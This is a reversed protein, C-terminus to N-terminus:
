PLKSPMPSRQHCQAERIANPQKKKKERKRWKKKKKGGANGKKM